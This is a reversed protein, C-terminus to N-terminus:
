QDKKYTIFLNNRVMIDISEKSFMKIVAPPYGGSETIAKATSLGWSIARLMMETEDKHAPPM